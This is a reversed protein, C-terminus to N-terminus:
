FYLLFFLVSDVDDYAEGGEVEEYECRLEEINCLLFDWEIKIKEIMM